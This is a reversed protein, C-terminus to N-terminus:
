EETEGTLLYPAVDPHNERYKIERQIAEIGMKIATETRFSVLRRQYTAEDKLINIAEEPIM